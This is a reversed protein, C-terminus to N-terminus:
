IHMVNQQYAYLNLKCQQSMAQLLDRLHLLTQFSDKFGPGQGTIEESPFMALISTLDM